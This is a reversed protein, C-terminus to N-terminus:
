QSTLPFYRDLMANRFKGAPDYHRMLGAFDGHREYLWHVVAPSTAFLKGWHPRARLPALREELRPLVSEVAPWDKVWTFHLGVCDRQYAPSLWLDDAAVTRIESTLLVPALEAGLSEAAGLAEAARERPVLYESQLEDGASPTFELRFHPLREHWPGPLGLQETSYAAPMGPVPNRPGDALHGGLWRGPPVEFGPVDIRRKLWIRTGRPSAWDTFVSVSYASAFITAFHERVQALPVDEYVYQAVYFSPVTALTLQTVIGLAGLAVITGPDGARTTTVLDGGATVMQISEVSTALGGLENGSGHTGTTCAGAVSIHPLSALNPLARGAKNLEVALEGYRVGASVTVTGAESDIEILRPLGALSVLDGTTDAIPSFSHGTGLARIRGGRTVLQQVDAVSAPRHVSEAAFTVNGAWNATM